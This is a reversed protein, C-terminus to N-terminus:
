MEAYIPLGSQQILSRLVMQMIFMKFYLALDNLFFIM